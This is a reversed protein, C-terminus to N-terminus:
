MHIKLVVSGVKLVKETSTLTALIKLDNPKKTINKVM